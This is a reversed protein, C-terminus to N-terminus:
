VGLSKFPPPALGTGLLALTLTRNKYNADEATWPNSKNVVDYLLIFSDILTLLYLSLSDMSKNKNLKDIFLRCFRRCSGASNQRFSYALITKDPFLTLHGFNSNRVKSPSHLFPDKNPANYIYPILTKKKETRPERSKKTGCQSENEM